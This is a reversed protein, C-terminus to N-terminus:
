FEYAEPKQAEHPHKDGAYVKLKRFMQRGLSNKPLMGKIAHEIIFEPKKELLQKYSVERRGGPYGTHYAHIKDEWKNGTLRVKEANIIVVFDGTDVHPTYIPKNKGRLINAVETALRGLVKGEADIIYWKREVEHAKAM